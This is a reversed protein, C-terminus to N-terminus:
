IGVDYSDGPVQIERREEEMETASVVLTYRGSPVGSFQYRGEEDTTADLAREVLTVAAGSVGVTPDDRLYVKGGIQLAEERWGDQPPGVQVRKTLVLRTTIEQNLGMTVTVRYDFSAKIDNDLAGWYDAPSRILGDPQAVATPIEQGGVARQLLEQSLVPHEFLTLLVRSLLRHKDEIANAWATVM